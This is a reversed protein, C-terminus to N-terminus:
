SSTEKTFIFRSAIPYNWGVFVLTASAAKAVILSLGLTVTALQVVAGGLLAGGIVVLIAYLALQKLANGRRTPFVWTRNLAFNVAGGLLCAVGASVGVALQTTRALVLLTVLDVASAAASSGLARGVRGAASKRKDMSSSM